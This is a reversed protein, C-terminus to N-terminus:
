NKWLKREKEIIEILENQNSEIIIYESPVREIFKEEYLHYLEKVIPTFFYDINYIIIKKHLNRRKNEQIFYFLLEYTEIGGPFFLFVDSQEYLQKLWDGTIIDEGHTFEDQSIAIVEKHQSLAEDYLIAMIGRPYDGAVLGIDKYKVLKEVVPHVSGFYRDAVIDSTSGSIFLNM